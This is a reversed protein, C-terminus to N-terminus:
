PSVRLAPKEGDRMELLVIEMKMSREGAMGRECLKGLVLFHHTFATRRGRRESVVTGRASWPGTALHAWSSTAGLTM